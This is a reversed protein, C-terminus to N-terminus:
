PQALRFFRTRDAAPIALTRVGDATSPQATLFLWQNTLSPDTSTQLMFNGAAPWSLVVQNTTRQVQLKLSSPIGDFEFAGIDFPELRLFQRQDFPPAGNGGSVTIADIAPSNSSLTMTPVPGGATTYSGLLPDLQNRSGAATFHASADSSINFGEDTVSGGANSGSVSYALISNRVRLIGAANFLAAGAQTGDNGPDGADGLGTGAGGAGGFGGAAANDSFTANVLVTTAQGATYLGAGLAPGGDGGDGGDSGFGLPSGRGGNGGTGGTVSNGVFTCNTLTVTGALNFVGAGLASGGTMGDQPLFSRTADLGDAGAAGYGRNATFTSNVIAVQGRDNYIAAGLGAGSEGASGDFGLVGSGSGGLGASSGAVFNSAFTCNFITLLGSGTNYIAAGSGNGGNGGQGGARGNAGLRADGGAGGQGGIAQNASFVCNTIFLQGGTNYVAAGAGLGGDGGDEGSNVADSGKGASVSHNAFTCGDLTVMGHDIYLAAGLVSLGDQGGTAAVGALQAGSVTLGRLVLTAGPQVVFLPGANTQQGSTIVPRHGAGDLVTDKIILLPRTLSITSDCALIVSGGGRLAVLLDAETCNTVTGSARLAVPAVLLLLCSALGTLLHRNV